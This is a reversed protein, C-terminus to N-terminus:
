LLVVTLMDEVSIQFPHVPVVLIFRPRIIHFVVLKQMHAAGLKLLVERSCIFRITM